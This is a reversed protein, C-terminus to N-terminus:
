EVNVDKFERQIDAAKKTETVRMQISSKALHQDALLIIRDCTNFILKSNM